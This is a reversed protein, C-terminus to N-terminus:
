AYPPFAYDLAYVSNVKSYDDILVAHANSYTVRLKIHSLLQRLFFEREEKNQRFKSFEGVSHAFERMHFHSIGFQKLSDNWNRDFETWQKDTAVFGAVVVALTDGATGSDDYYATFQAGASEIRYENSM